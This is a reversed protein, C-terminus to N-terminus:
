ITNGIQKELARIEDRLKAAQEYEESAIHRELEQKMQKLRHKVELTGQGRKPVKGTHRCTGHIRRILPELKAGFVQYCASCGIKGSSSFDTYTMGCNHCAIETKPSAGNIFEHNFMGKLFDNVSFNNVMSFSMEGTSQACDECLHKEIKQNNIIKTVHVCAPKSKCNDCLM